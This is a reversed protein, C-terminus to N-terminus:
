DGWKISTASPCVRTGPLLSAGALFFPDARLVKFLFRALIESLLGSFVQGISMLAKQLTPVIWISGLRDGEQSSEGHSLQSKLSSMKIINITSLPHFRHLSNREM